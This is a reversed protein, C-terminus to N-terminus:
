ASAEQTTASVPRSTGPDGDHVIETPPLYSRGFAQRLAAIPLSPDLGAEVAGERIFAVRKMTDSLEYGAYIRITAARHGTWRQPYLEILIACVQDLSPADSHRRLAEDMARRWQKGTM